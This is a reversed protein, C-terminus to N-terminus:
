YNELYLLTFSYEEITSSFFICISRRLLCTLSSYLRNWVWSFVLRLLSVFIFLRYFDRESDAWLWLLSSFFISNSYSLYLYSCSDLRLKSFERRSISNFIFSDEAASYFSFLFKFVSRILTYSSLM